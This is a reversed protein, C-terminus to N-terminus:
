KHFQYNPHILLNMQLQIHNKQLIAYIFMKEADTKNDSM